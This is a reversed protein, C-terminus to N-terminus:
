SRPLLIRQGATIPLERALTAADAASPLFADEIGASALVALSGEGIAAWSPLHTPVGVRGLAAVTARAANGSTIVIRDGPALDRLAADLEGGPLVSVIEIAPVNVADIGHAQLARLVAAAQDDTRCVLVRPGRRLAVIRAALRSALDRNSAADADGRVWAITAVAEALPADRSRRGPASRRPSWRSGGTRASRASPASRRAAAAARRTSCRASPRSRPARRRTTSCASPPSRRTTTTASRSRSAGRARRPPSCPRPLIEDIRDTRGLRSLGAVALVLADTAATSRRSARTSTATSRTSTSTRDFARCSRRAVRATPAWAHATRSAHGAHTGRVRCVLADRPDERPPYAAIVLRPHEDTPVDKASHVALDVAGDLLAGVIRGVFAGEGWATDVPRDDGETRIITIETPVDHEALRDAVWRAQVLALTSGRTGIRLTRTM